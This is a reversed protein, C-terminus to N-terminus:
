MGLRVRLWLYLALQWLLGLFVVVRFYWHKTKHRFILMGLLAGVAGGLLAVGLLVSEKIRWAHCKAKLKDIGYLFFAVVNVGILYVLLGLLLNSAM